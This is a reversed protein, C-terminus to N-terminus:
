IKEDGADPVVPSPPSLAPSPVSLCLEAGDIINSEFTVCVPGEVVVSPGANGCIRCRILVLSAVLKCGNKTNGGEAGTGKTDPTPAYSQAHVAPTLVSKTGRVDCDTLSLVGREYVFAGRAGCNATPPDFCIVRSTACAHICCVCVCVCVCSSVQRHYRLMQSCVESDNDAKIQHPNRVYRHRM